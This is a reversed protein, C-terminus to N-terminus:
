GKRPRGPGSERETIIGKMELFRYDNDITGHSVILSHKKRLLNVMGRITPIGGRGSGRWAKIEAMILRHRLQRAIERGSLKKTHKRYDILEKPVIVRLNLKNALDYSLPTAPNPGYKKLLTNREREMKSSDAWADKVIEAVSRNSDGPQGAQPYPPRCKAAMTEVRSAIEDRTIGARRLAQAYHLLKKMRGPYPFGNSHESLTLIDQALAAHQARYGIRKSKDRLKPPTFRKRAYIPAPKVKFAVALEDLSYYPDPRLPDRFAQLGWVSPRGSKSHITGPIRLRTHAAFVKPDAAAYHLKEIIAKNVQKLLERRHEHAPEPQGPNNPDELLWLCYLGRGSFATMSPAPIDRRLVMETLWGLVQGVPQRKLLDPDDPRGCDLDVFCTNLWRLNKETEAATPLGTLVSAGGQRGWSSNLMFYGDYMLHPAMGEFCNDLEDPRLSGAPWMDSHHPGCTLRAAKCARCPRVNGPLKTSFNIYGDKGRHIALVPALRNSLIAPASALMAERDDLLSSDSVLHAAPDPDPSDADPPLDPTLIEIAPLAPRSTM